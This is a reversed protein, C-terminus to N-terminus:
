RWDKNGMLGAVDDAGCYLQKFLHVSFVPSCPHKYKVEPMTPTTVVAAVVFEFVLFLFFIGVLKLENRGTYHM